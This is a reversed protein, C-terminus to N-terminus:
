SQPIMPMYICIRDGKRIGQSTLFNALQCVEDFLEQYTIKQNKENPDNGEWIIAVKDKLQALHRDLCNYSINTKGGIFWSIKGQVLDCNSVEQWKKYWFFEEAIKGWFSKPDTTSNQYEQIYSSKSKIHFM